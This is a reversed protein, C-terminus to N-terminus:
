RPSHQRIAKVRAASTHMREKFALLVFALGTVIPLAALVFFMIDLM